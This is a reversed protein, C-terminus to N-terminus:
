SNVRPGNLIDRQPGKAIDGGRDTQLLEKRASQLYKTAPRNCKAGVLLELCSRYMTQPNMIFLANSDFSCSTCCQLMLHFTEHLIYTGEFAIILSMDSIGGGRAM